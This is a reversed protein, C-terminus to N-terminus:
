ALNKWRGTIMRLEAFAACSRMTFRPILYEPRGGKTYVISRYATNDEYVGMTRSKVRPRVTHFPVIRADPHTAVAHPLLLPLPELLHEHGAVRHRAVVRELTPFDVPQEEVEEAGRIVEVEM